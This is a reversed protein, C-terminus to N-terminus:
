DQGVVSISSLRTNESARLGRATTCTDNPEVRPPEVGSAALSYGPVRDLDGNLISEQVGGDSSLRFENHTGDELEVAGQGEEIQSV